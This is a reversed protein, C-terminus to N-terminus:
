HNSVSMFEKLSLAGKIIDLKHVKSALQPLTCFQEADLNHLTLAAKQIQPIKLLSNLRVPAYM